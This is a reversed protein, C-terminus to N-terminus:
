NYLATNVMNRAHELHQQLTPHKMLPPSHQDDRLVDRQQQGHVDHPPSAQRTPSLSSFPNIFFPNPVSFPHKLGNIAAAGPSADLPSPVFGNTKSRKGHAAAASSPYSSDDASESTELAREGGRGPSTMVSGGVADRPKSLNLPAETVDARRSPSVPSM